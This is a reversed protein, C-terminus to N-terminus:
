YFCQNIASVRAAILEIQMRDLTRHESKRFNGMEQFSLYQATGLDRWDRLADPV